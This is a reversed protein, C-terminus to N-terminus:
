LYCPLYLKALLSLPTGLHLCAHAACVAGVAIYCAQLIVSEAFLITICLLLTVQHNNAPNPVDVHSLM